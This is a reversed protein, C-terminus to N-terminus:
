SVGKKKKKKKKKERGREDRGVLERGELFEVVVEDGRSGDASGHAAFVLLFTKKKTEFREAGGATKKHKEREGKGKRASVPKKGRGRARVASLIPVFCSGFCVRLFFTVDFKNKERKCEKEREREREDNRM